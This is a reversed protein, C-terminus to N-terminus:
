PHNNVEFRWGQICIDDKEKLYMESSTSQGRISAMNVPELQVKLHSNRLHIPIGNNEAGIINDCQQFM